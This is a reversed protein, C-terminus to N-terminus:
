FCFTILWTVLLLPVIDRAKRLGGDDTGDLRVDEPEDEPLMEAKSKEAVKTQCCTLSNSIRTM